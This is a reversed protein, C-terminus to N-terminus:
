NWKNSCNFWSNEKLNDTSESTNSTNEKFSTRAASSVILSQPFNRQKLYSFLECTGNPSTTHKQLHNSNLLYKLVDVFNSNQIVNKELTIEGKENVDVNNQALQELLQETRLKQKSGAYKVFSLIAAPKIEQEENENKDVLKKYRTIPVLAFKKYSM